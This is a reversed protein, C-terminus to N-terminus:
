FKWDRVILFCAEISVTLYEIRLFISLSDGSNVGFDSSIGYHSLDFLLSSGNTKRSVPSLLGSLITKMWLKSIKFCRLFLSKHITSSVNLNLGWLNEWITETWETRKPRANRAAVNQTM